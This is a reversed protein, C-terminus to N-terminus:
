FGTLNKLLARTRTLRFGHERIFRIPRLLYHLFALSAPLPLLARDRADPILMTSLSRLYGRLHNHRFYRVRDQLSERTRLYFTLQDFDKIGGGAGAFLQERVQAALSPVMSDTQVRQWVEEPLAAGLLDKALFLGLFLIRRNRLREAQVLFKDWALGQQVRILEAVDCIWGLREWCHKAGHACLILLLEQQPLNLVARGALFVSELREEMCELDLPFAWYEETFAWHLEVCVKGDDRAFNWHYFSHLWRAEREETLQSRYGHSLLLEKAKLLDRKHVLIDLDGFQRLSLNGYVKAALVPGKYPVALVGHIKFLDLIKLLEQTLFRNHFGNINFQRQLQNLIAEPVSEACTTNLNWYLLPMLGHPRALRILYAWNIDGQLLTRIQEAREADMCTRACCLLLEAEPRIGATLAKDSPKSVVKRWSYQSGDMLHIAPSNRMCAVRSLISGEMELIM